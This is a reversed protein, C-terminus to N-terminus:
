PTWVHGRSLNDLKAGGRKRRLKRHVGGGMGMGGEVHLEFKHFGTCDSCPCSSSFSNVLLSAYGNGESSTWRLHIEDPQWWTPEWIPCAMGIAWVTTKYSKAIAKEYVCLMQTNGQFDGQFIKPTMFTWLPRDLAWMAIDASRTKNWVLSPAM